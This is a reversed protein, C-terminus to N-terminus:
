KDPPYHALSAALCGIYLVCSLEWWGAFFFIQCWIDISSLNFFESRSYGCFCTYAHMVFLYLLFFHFSKVRMINFIPLDLNCHSLDDSYNTTIPSHTNQSPLPVIIGGPASFINERMRPLSYIHPVIQCFNM